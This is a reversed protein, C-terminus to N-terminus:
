IKEVPFQLETVYSEDDQRVPVTCYLYLERNPGAV